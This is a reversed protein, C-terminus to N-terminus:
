KIKSPFVGYKKYFANSFKSPNSYGVLNALDIINIERSKLIEMSKELRINRLYGIPPKDYIKPFIEKIYSQNIDFKLSLFKLTINDTYNAKIYKEIKIVKDIYEQKHFKKNIYQEKKEVNKLALQLSFLKINSISNRNIEIILKKLINLSEITIKSSLIKNRDNMICCLDNYSRKDYLFSNKYFNLFEDIYFFLSICKIGGLGTESSIFKGNGSYIMVENEKFIGTFKNELFINANGRITHHMICINESFAMEKDNIINNMIYDSYTLFVGKCIKYLNIIGEGYEAKVCYRKSDMTENILNYYENYFSEDELSSNKM